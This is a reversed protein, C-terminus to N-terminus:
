FASRTAGDARDILERVTFSPLLAQVGSERVIELGSSILEDRRAIDTM